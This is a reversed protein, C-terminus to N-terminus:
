FTDPSIRRGEEGMPRLLANARYKHWADPEGLSEALLRELRLGPSNLMKAWYGHIACLLIGVVRGPARGPDGHEDPVQWASIAITDIAPSYHDM